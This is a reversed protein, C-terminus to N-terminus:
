SGELCKKLRRLTTKLQDKYTTELVARPVLRLVGKPKGGIIMTVKTGGEVGECTIENSASIASDSTTEYVIRRGVDLEQVVYTNTLDNGLFSSVYRKKTGVQTPGAPDRTASSLNPQWEKERAVDDMYAFVEEPPRKIVISAGQRSM